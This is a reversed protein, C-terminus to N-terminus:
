KLINKQNLFKMGRKLQEYEIRKIFEKRRREEEERIKNIKKM